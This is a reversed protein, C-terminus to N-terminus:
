RIVEEFCTSMRDGDKTDGAKADGAFDFLWEGARLRGGAVFHGATLREVDLDVVREGLQGDIRADKSMPFEVGEADFFTFHVENHGERAPDVYMQVTRGGGIEVTHLLLDGAVTTTPAPCRTHFVLPIEVSDAGRDILLVARWRGPTAIASGRTQYVDGDRELEITTPEVEGDLPSLRIRVRKVSSGRRVDVEVTFTNVGAQSPSIELTAEVSRAFDSGEVVVSRREVALSKSPVLSALLGALVLVALMVTLEVRAARRLRSPDAEVARVSRYRQYAGIAALVGIGALKGLVARGYGTSLLAGWSGVEQMARATGTAAVVLLAFGAVNSYRRVTVVRTQPDVGKIAVLLACLGGVWIGAAAFHVFHTAVRLWVIGGAAAHGATGHLFMTAGAAAATLDWAFRKSTVVATVVAAGAVVLGVTRGALARGIPTLFLESFAVGASARQAFALVLLGAFSLAVGLFALGTARSAPARILFGFVVAAGLLVMLGIYLLVRGAVEGPVVVTALAVPLEADEIESPSVGVGFAYAGVTLHGDVRSVVKWSVTYVGKDLPEVAIRLGGAVSTADGKTHRAGLTDLVDISSLKADPAETFTLTVASPPSGLSAGEAPDADALLAHAGARPAALLAMAGACVVVM